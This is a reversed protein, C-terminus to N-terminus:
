QPWLESYMLLFTRLRTNKKPVNNLATKKLLRMLVDLGLAECPLPMTLYEPTKWQLPRELSHAIPMKKGNGSLYFVRYSSRTASHEYDLRPWRRYIQRYWYRYLQNPRDEADNAKNEIVIVGRPKTRSLMIDVRDAEVTLNWEGADPEPVRLHRLLSRLFLPGQGHSGRPDLLEGLIGSHITEKLPVLSLPNFLQGCEKNRAEAVKKASLWQAIVQEIQRLLPGTHQQKLELYDHLVAELAEARIHKTM